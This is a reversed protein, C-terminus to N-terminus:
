DERQIEKIPHYGYLIRDHQAQHYLHSNHLLSKSPICGVNLCTGGLKGRREVCVTKLGLQAAKIAAVYGGPGGGIVCLDYQGSSSFLRRGASALTPSFKLSLMSPRQACEAVARDPGAPSGSSASPFDSRMMPLCLMAVIVVTDINISALTSRIEVDCRM